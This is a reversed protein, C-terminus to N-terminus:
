NKSNEVVDLMNEMSRLIYPSPTRCQVFLINQFFNFVWYKKGFVDDAGHEDFLWQAFLSRKM